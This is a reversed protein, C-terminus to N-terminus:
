YEKRKFIGVTVPYSISFALMSCVLLVAVGLLITATGSELLENIVTVLVLDIGLACLFTIILFVDGRETGSLCFLPYFMAGMLLSMSVGLAFLTLIDIPQDFLCGHLLWSLCMAIGAFLTGAFLWIIQNIFYSKVIDARKVPLTLKYKGWKLAFESKVVMMANASFGIIGIMVYYILLQQSTVAVVFVGLLFMSISFVKANPITAYLNNKLLGKM